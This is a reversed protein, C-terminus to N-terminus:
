GGAGGIRRLERVVSWLMLVGLAGIGAIALLAYAIAELWQAVKDEPAPRANVTMGGEGGAPVAAASNGGEAAQPPAPAAEREQAPEAEILPRGGPAAFRTGPDNTMAAIAGLISLTVLGAMVLMATRVVWDFITTPM